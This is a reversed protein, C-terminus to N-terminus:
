PGPDLRPEAWRYLTMGALVAPVWLLSYGLCIQGRYNLPIKRYDWIRHDRNLALGTALELATVMGAGALMRAPAPVRNLKREMLGILRFCTGGLLFMSGHSRGRWLLELCVYSGGGLCFLATNKWLKM